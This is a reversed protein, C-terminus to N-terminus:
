SLLNLFGILTRVPTHLVKRDRGLAIKFAMNGIRRSARETILRTARAEKGNPGISQTEEKVYQFSIQAIVRAKLFKVYWASLTKGYLSSILPHM